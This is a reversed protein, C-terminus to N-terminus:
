RVADIPTGGGFLDAIASILVEHFAKGGGLVISANLFM